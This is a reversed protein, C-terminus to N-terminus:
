WSQKPISDQVYGLNAKLEGLGGGKAEATIIPVVM